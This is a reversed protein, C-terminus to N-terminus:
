LITGKTSMGQGSGANKGDATGSNGSVPSYAQWLARGLAKFLAEACHHSNRGHRLQAHLTIRARNALAILFERILVMEFSGCREQPFSDDFVLCPRGGADVSVESLADDMPIVAHGFRRLDGRDEAALRLAEGLVLGTDEVLHHYDVEVDGRARVSLSFRGHFAASKLLHNFFGVGTDIAIEGATDLDIDVQIETENTKRSSSGARPKM